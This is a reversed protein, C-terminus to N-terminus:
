FNAVNKVFMKPHELKDNTNWSYVITYLQETHCRGCVAPVINIVSM